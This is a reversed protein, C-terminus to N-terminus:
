TEEKTSPTFLLAIRDIEENRIKHENIGGMGTIHGDDQYKMKKIEEVTKEATEQVIQDLFDTLASDASVMKGKYLHFGGITGFTKDFKERASQQLNTILNTM